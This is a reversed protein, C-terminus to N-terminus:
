IFGTKKCIEYASTYRTLMLDLKTISINQFEGSRKFYPRNSDLKNEVYDLGSKIQSIQTKISDRVVDNLEEECFIKLADHM